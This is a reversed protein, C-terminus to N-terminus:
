FVLELKVQAASDFAVPNLLILGTGESETSWIVIVQVFSFMWLCSWHLFFLLCVFLCVFFVKAIRRNLEVLQLFTDILCGSASCRCGLTYKPQPVALWLSHIRCTSNAKFLQRCPGVTALVCFRRRCLSIALRRQLTKPGRWCFKLWSGRGPLNNGTLLSHVLDMVHPWCISSHRVHIVVSSLTESRTWAHGQDGSKVFEVLHLLFEAIATKM